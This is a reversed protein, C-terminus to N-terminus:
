NFNSMEVFGEKVKIFDIMNRYIESKSLVEENGLFILQKRARTIAVNLKRDVKIGDINVVSQVFQIYHSNNVASSIIIFDRESGQFREVTDILISEKLDEPLMKIINAVQARFMCIVGISKEKFAVGLKGRILKIIEITLEAEQNNIKLINETQTNIFILRSKALSRELFEEAEKSFFNHEETQISDKKWLKMQNGYFLHNVLEQIDQHMRAQHNILDVCDWNNLKACRLLREFLSDSLNFLSIENLLPSEVICNKRNQVVVAPLQKEDGIMIFREVSSLLGIIHPELIQSAEDIIAINFKKIHFIESNSLASSITSVFVRTNKILLYLERLDLTEAIFSISRDIHSSNDKYGLRLFPFNEDIRKLHTSIEDVARNTYALLLITDESNNFLYDVINRLIVSTKGTGPPGQILYYDKAAIAKAIINRQNENLNQFLDTQILDFQPESKGLLLNQKEIKARFLEFVSSYLSKSTSENYDSELIFVDDDGFYDAPINKNRLSITVLSNDIYRISSKFLQQKSPNAEELISDKYLVTMDGKRFISNNGEIEDIEFTVHLLVLNSLDRNLKLNSLVNYNLRKEEISSRWLSSHKNSNTGNTGLKEAKIEKAIFSFFNLLYEKLLQNSNEFKRLIQFYAEKTFKTLSETKIFNRDFFLLIDKELISYHYILNNRIELFNQKLSFHNPVNRLPSDTNSSYLILSSGSRKEDISDLLLNYGTAQAIHNSWCGASITKGDKTKYFIEKQPPKGSKLEVVDKRRSDGTNEILLDLRGQLGYIPSLFSPEIYFKELNLKEIQKKLISFQSFAKEKLYISNNRNQLTVAFFVLPKIKIANEYATEFDINRNLLLEDFLSNIISGVLMERTLEKKKLLNTFFTIQFSFNSNVSEAIETIDLLLDPELIIISGSDTFYITKSKDAKKIGILNLINGKGAIKWLYNFKDNLFLKFSGIEESILDFGVSKETSIKRLVSTNLVDIVKKEKFTLAPFFADFKKCINIIEINPELKTFFYCINVIAKINLFAINQLKDQEKNKLNKSSYFAQRILYALKNSISYKDCIFVIRAFNSPFIQLEDQIILLLIEKLISHIKIIDSSNYENLSIFNQISSYYYEANEKNLM